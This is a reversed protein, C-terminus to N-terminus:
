CIIWSECMWPRNRIAWLNPIRCQKCYINAVRSRRLSARGRANRQRTVGRHKAQLKPQGNTPLSQSSSDNGSVNWRDHNIAATYKRVFDFPSVWLHKVRRQYVSGKM